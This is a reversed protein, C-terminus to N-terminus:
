VHILLFHLLDPPHPLIDLAHDVSLRCCCCGRSKCIQCHQKLEVEATPFGAVVDEEVVKVDESM